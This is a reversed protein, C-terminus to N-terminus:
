SLKGFVALVGTKEVADTVILKFSAQRIHEARHLKIGLKLNGDDLKWRLFAPVEVPPDGFYVPVSLLFRTPIELEGKTRAETNDTYEFNENDSSTRVAKIFNVTRKAQLDRVAEILDAAAPAKIDPANEEIFRAFELQPQLQGSIGTWIKWEESYPLDLIARHEVLAAKDPAHYDLAGVIRSQAIDALLLSDTSKFRNLYEILADANQLTVAQKINKPRHVDLSNPPTVDHQTHGAPLVLFERGSETKVTTPVGTARVALEAVTQAENTM